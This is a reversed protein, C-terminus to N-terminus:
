LESFNVFNITVTIEGKTHHSSILLLKSKKYLEFDIKKQSILYEALGIHWSIHHVTGLMSYQM